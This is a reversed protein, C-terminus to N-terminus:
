QKRVEILLSFELKYNRCTQLKKILYIHVLYARFFKKIEINKSTTKNTIIKFIRCSLDMLQSEALNKKM